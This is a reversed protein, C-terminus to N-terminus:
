EALPPKSGTNPPNQGQEPPGHGTAGAFSTFNKWSNSRAKLRETQIQSIFSRDIKLTDLPFSHLCGLSSYGAGFDDM